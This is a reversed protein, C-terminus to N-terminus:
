SRGKKQKEMMKLVIRIRARIAPSRDVALLEITGRLENFLEPEDKAVRTLVAIANARVAVAANGQQLTQFCENVVIGRMNKPLEIHHLIRFVNRPVAVHVGPDQMRRIMEPLWGKILGPHADACHSVIWASRQTLRYDGSLFIKMLGAFRQSNNGIWRTVRVAQRKSHEALIEEELNM